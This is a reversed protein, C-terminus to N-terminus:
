RNFILYDCKLYELSDIILNSNLLKLPFPKDEEIKVKNSDIVQVDLTFNKNIKPLKEAPNDDIKGDNTGDINKTDGSTRNTSM